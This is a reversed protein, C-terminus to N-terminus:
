TWSSGHAGVRAPVGTRIGGTDMRDAIVDPEITEFLSFLNSGAPLDELAAQPIITDLTTRQREQGHAGAAHAWLCCAVAFARRRARRPSRRPLSRTAPYLKGMGSVDLAAANMSAILAPSNSRTLAITDSSGASM